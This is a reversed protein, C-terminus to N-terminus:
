IEIVLDPPPDKEADLKTKERIEPERQIYFCTDAEFGRKLDPRKFTTSGCDLVNIKLERGLVNVLHAFRRNAREHELLPSMIELVGRDYILRPSSQDALDATLREYTEWSVNHLRVRQQAPLVRTITAMISM